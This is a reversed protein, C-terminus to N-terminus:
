KISPYIFALNEEITNSKIKIWRLQPNTSIELAFKGDNVIMKGIETYYKNFKTLFLKFCTGTKKKFYNNIQDANSSMKNLIDSMIKYLEDNSYLMNRNFYINKLINKNIDNVIIFITAIIENYKSYFKKNTIDNSFINQQQNNLDFLKDFGFTNRYLFLEM